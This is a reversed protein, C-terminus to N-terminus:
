HEELNDQSKYRQERIENREKIYQEYDKLREKFIDKLAEKEAYDVSEPDPTVHDIHIRMRQRRLYWTGVGKLKLILSPPKRMSVSLAKFIFNGIDKYIVESKKTREATLKYLQNNDSQM